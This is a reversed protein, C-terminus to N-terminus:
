KGEMAHLDSVSNVVRVTDSWTYYGHERQILENAQAIADACQTCHEAHEILANIKEQTIQM